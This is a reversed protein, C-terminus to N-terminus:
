GVTLDVQIEGALTELEAIVASADAGQSMRVVATAEFLVGGAMPAEITRSEFRDISLARIELVSTVDRVIGPRDNGLVTFTLTPGAAATVASGSQASVRLLGDLAGLDDALQQAGADDVSVLVVGAFVGALESLESQEWNGGHEAIVDALAKVLGARDSGAVTLVLQAM